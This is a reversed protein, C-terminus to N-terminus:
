KKGGRLVFGIRSVRFEFCYRLVSSGFEFSKPFNFKSIQSKGAGNSLIMNVSFPQLNTKTIKWKKISLLSHSDLPTFNEFKPNLNPIVCNAKPPYNEKRQEVDGIGPSAFFLLDKFLVRGPGFDRHTM